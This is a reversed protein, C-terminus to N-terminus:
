INMNIAGMKNFADNIYSTAERGIDEGLIERLRYLQATKTKNYWKKPKRNVYSVNAGARAGRRDAANGTREFASIGRGVGMDRLRGYFKFKILMAVMEDRYTIVQKTFSDILENSVGIGQKRISKQFKQITIDAWEEVKKRLDMRDQFSEM